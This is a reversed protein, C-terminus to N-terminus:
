IQDSGAACRHLRWRNEGVPELLWDRWRWPATKDALQEIPQEVLQALEVLSLGYGRESFRDALELRTLLGQLDAPAYDEGDRAEKIPEVLDLAISA